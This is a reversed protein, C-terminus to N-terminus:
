LVITRKVEVPFVGFLRELPSSVTYSTAAAKNYAEVVTIMDKPDQSYVASSYAARFLGKEALQATSLSDYRRKAQSDVVAAAGDYGITWIFDERPIM